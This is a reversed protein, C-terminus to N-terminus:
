NELWITFPRDQLSGDSIDYTHVEVTGSCGGAISAPPTVLFATAVVDDQGGDVGAIEAAVMVSRPTFPLDKLCYVGPDFTDKQVNASTINKSKTDVVFGTAVVTAYAVATGADGKDGKVGQIGQDGKVGQIGQDGKLGQIGQDGKLGQIGQDGKVGQDGKLGQIGQLGQAGAQNWTIQTEFTTNCHQLLSTTPLSPDILRITGLANLKCATYVGAANPITAYAIGGAVAFLAVTIIVLRRSRRGILARM